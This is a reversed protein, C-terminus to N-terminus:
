RHHRVSELLLSIADSTPHRISDVDLTSRAWIDLTVSHVIAANLPSTPDLPTLPDIAVTHLLASLLWRWLFPDV